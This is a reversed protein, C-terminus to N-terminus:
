GDKVVVLDAGFMDKAKNILAQEQAQKDQNEPTEGVEFEEEMFSQITLPIGFTHKLAGEITKRNEMQSVKDKHFSCGTRFLITLTNDKLQFPRGEMLFAQTSKKHKKIEDLIENWREQIEL